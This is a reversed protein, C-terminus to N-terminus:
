QEFSAQQVFIRSDVMAGQLSRSFEGHSVLYSTMRDRNVTGARGGSSARSALPPPQETSVAAIEVNTETIGNFPELQYVGVVALVAAAAALMSGFRRGAKAAIAPQVGSDDSEGELSSIAQMVSSRFGESLAVVSDKRLISGIASYRALTARYAEDRELRRVLLELEAEPLEGDLFASLQEEINRTVDAEM